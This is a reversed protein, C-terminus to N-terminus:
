EAFRDMPNQRHCEEIVRIQKKVQEPTVVLEGGETIHKHLMKYYTGTMDAFTGFEETEFKWEEEYLKLDESCYAPEGEEDELPTKILVQDQCEEPKFYKYNIKDMTATLGGNSGQINYLYHDYPKCSSIEIDIIPKGKGSLLVKVYDEADGFTNVRDMFCKVDPEGEGFLQLAQDMPHPGTNMLSGGNFAQVTQWDWRRTFGSYSISIQIIRGLVGSDILERIKTFFAAFRSQQFIYFGVNNEKATDILLQVESERRALPKDCLVNFGHEMLDKTIDVHLYSPTANIVLDIDDRDFLETYDSYTDVGSGYRAAVKYRRDEIPDVVAVTEFMDASNLMAKGHIKWGSRGQGLIAVKLKKM